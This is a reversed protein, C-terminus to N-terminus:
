IENNNTARKQTPSEDVVDGIGAQDTEDALLEAIHFIKIPHNLRKLRGAINLLCSMDTSVLIEAGTAVINSVKDNVM